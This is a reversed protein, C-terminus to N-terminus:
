AFLIVSMRTIPPDAVFVAFNQSSGFAKTPDSFAFIPIEEVEGNARRDTLGIAPSETPNTTPEDVAVCSETEESPKPVVVREPKFIEPDAVEVEFTPKM